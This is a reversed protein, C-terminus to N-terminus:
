RNLSLVASPYALGFSARETLPNIEIRLQTQM